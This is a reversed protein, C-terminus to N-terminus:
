YYIKLFFGIGEGNEKRLKKLFWGLRLNPSQYFTYGKNNVLNSKSIIIVPLYYYSWPNNHYEKGLIQVVFGPIQRPDFMERSKSGHSM